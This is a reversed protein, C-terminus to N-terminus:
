LWVIKLLLLLECHSVHHGEHLQKDLIYPRTIRLDGLLYVSLSQEGICVLVDEERVDHLVEREVLDTPQKPDVAVQV